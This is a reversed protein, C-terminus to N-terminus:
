EEPAVPLNGEAAVFDYAGAGTGNYSDVFIYATEGEALELEIGSHLDINDDNCALEFTPIFSSCYSRAYILMDIGEATGTATFHYTGATAATFSYVDVPGAGGCTGGDSTVMSASNDGSVTMGVEVPTVTWEAPCSNDVNMENTCTEICLFGEGCTSLAGYTDCTVGEGVAVPTGVELTLPESNLGLADFAIVVITAPNAAMESADVWPSSFTSSFKTMDSEDIVIEPTLQISQMLIDEGNADLFTAEFGVVDAGEATADTGNVTFGVSNAEANFSAVGDTLVPAFVVQCVGVSDEETPTICLTGEACANFGDTLDCAGEAEIDMPAGVEVDVMESMLGLADIVYVSANTLGVYEEGLGGLVNGMFSEGDFSISGFDAFPVEIAELVEGNVTFIFGITVVDGEADSGNVRAAVLYDRSNFVVEAGELVPATAQILEARATFTMGEASEAGEEFGFTDVTLFVEQGAELNIIIESQVEGNNFDGFDDNCDLESASDGCTSQLYIVTDLGFNETTDFRYTGTEPATFM